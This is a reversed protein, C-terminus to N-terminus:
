PSRTRFTSGTQPPPHLEPYMHEACPCECGFIIVSDKAWVTVWHAQLFNYGLLPRDLNAILFKHRHYRSAFRFTKTARGLLHVESGNVAYM